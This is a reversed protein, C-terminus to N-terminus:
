LVSGFLGGGLVCGVCAAWSLGLQSSWSSARRRWNARHGIGWGQGPGGADLRRLEGSPGGLRVPGGEGRGGRARARAGLARSGAEQPPTRRAQRKSPRMRALVGMVPRDRHASRRRRRARGIRPLRAGAAQWLGHDARRAASASGCSLLIHIYDIGPRAWFIASPRGSTRCTCHLVLASAPLMHGKEGLMPGPICEPM